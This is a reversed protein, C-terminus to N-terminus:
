PGLPLLTRHALEPLHFDALQALSRRSTLRPRLVSSTPSSAPLARRTSPPFSRPWPFIQQLCRTRPVARVLSTTSCCIPSRALRQRRQGLTSARHPFDAHRSKDPPRGSLATGVPIAGGLM